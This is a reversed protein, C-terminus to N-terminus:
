TDRVASTQWVNQELGLLDNAPSFDTPSVQWCSCGQTQSVHQAPAHVLSQYAPATNLLPLERREHRQHREGACLTTGVWTSPCYLLDRSQIAFTSCDISALAATHMSCYMTTYSSVTLPKHRALRKKCKGALNLALAAVAQTHMSTLILLVKYWHGAVVILLSTAFTKSYLM